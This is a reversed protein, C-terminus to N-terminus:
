GKYKIQWIKRALTDLRLAIRAVWRRIGPILPIYNKKIGPYLSRRKEMVALRTVEWANIAMLRDYEPGDLWDKLQLHARLWYFKAEAHKTSSSNSNVFRWSWTPKPNYIWPVQRAIRLFWDVDQRFVIKPNCGGSELYANREVVMGQMHWGNNIGLVAKRLEENTVFRPADDHSMGFMSPRDEADGEGWWKRFNSQYLRASHVRMAESASELHSKDWVDDADLFSVWQSNATEVGLNRADGCILRGGNVVQPNIPHTKAVNITEDTSGADVVIVEAPQQSQLAISDLAVRLTSSANYAPIIVSFNM